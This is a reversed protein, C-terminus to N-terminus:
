NHNRTVGEGQFSLVYVLNCIVLEKLAKNLDTFAEKVCAKGSFQKVNM